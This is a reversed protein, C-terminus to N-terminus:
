SIGLYKALSVDKSSCVGSISRPAGMENKYKFFGVRQHECTHEMLYDVVSDEKYFYLVRDPGKDATYIEAIKDYRDKSKKTLEVEIFVIMDEFSCAGDPVYPIKDAHIRFERDSVWDAAGHSELYYRIEATLLDHSVTELDSVSAVPIDRTNFCRVAEFGKPMLLYLDHGQVTQKKLYDSKILRVLRFYLKSRKGSPLSLDEPAFWKLILNLTLCRHQLLLMFLKLDDEGIKFDGHGSLVM